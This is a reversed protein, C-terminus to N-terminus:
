SGRGRPGSPRERWGGSDEVISGRQVAPDVGDGELLCEPGAPRGFKEIGMEEGLSDAQVAAVEKVSEPDLVAFLEVEPEPGLLLPQALLGHSGEPKQDVAVEITALITKPNLIRLAQYGDVRQGLVGM